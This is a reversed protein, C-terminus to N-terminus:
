SKLAKHQRYIDMILWLVPYPPIIVGIILKINKSRSDDPLISIGAIGAMYAIFLLFVFLALFLTGFYGFHLYSWKLM